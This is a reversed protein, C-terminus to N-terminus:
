ATTIFFKWRRNGRPLTTNRAGVRRHLLLFAARRSMQPMGESSVHTSIPEVLRSRSPVRRVSHRSLFGNKQVGCVM